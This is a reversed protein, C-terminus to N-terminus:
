EKPRRGGTRGDEDTRGRDADDLPRSDTPSPAAIIEIAHEVLVRDNTQWLGALAPFEGELEVCLQRVGEWQRKSLRGLDPYGDVSRGVWSERAWAKTDWTRSEIAATRLFHVLDDLGITTHNPLAIEDPEDDVPQPDGRDRFIVPQAPPKRPKRDSRRELYEFLRDLFEVYFPYIFGDLGLRGFAGVTGAWTLPMLPRGPDPVGALLQVISVTAGCGVGLLQIGACVILDGVTVAGNIQAGSAAELLPVLRGNSPKHRKLAKDIAQDIIPILQEYEITAAARKKRFM